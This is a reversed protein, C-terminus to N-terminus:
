LEQQHGGDRDARRVEPLGLMQCALRPVCDERRHYPYDDTGALNPLPRHLRDSTVHRGPRQGRVSFKGTPDSFTEPSGNAYLYRHLSVPGMPDGAFPDVSVFRGRGPDMWRARLYVFGANPDWQEGVYRFENETTGAKALEEGFATYWYEDTVVGAADTLERVSGQGDAAYYRTEGGQNQSIRELGYVYDVTLSSADDYEAIVQGYSLQGDILYKKTGTGDSSTAAVRRDQADYIYQLDVGPGSVTVMRDNNEWGYSITGSSDTRTRMRGAPDYTYSVIGSASTEELLQDRSNYTYSTSVGDRTQTLRNGVKDYIDSIAYPHTGTQSEGTLRYLNDYAYDM